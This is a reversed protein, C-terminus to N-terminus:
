PRPSSPAQEARRTGEARPRRCPGGRYLRRHRERAEDDIVPGIDTALTWPDGLTLEDMAGFLMDQVTDAVDEQVYLCRLASCRQGASQFASALIDRVAQEPLATSDVLMANLGGTEAILPAAPDLHEAMARRIKLATETSGTFAVGNVRPDSVLAAGVEGDGPLLQLATPPVGAKHLLDVALTAILPTQPAPKALVANGAALAAAIQGSFIALPFNWPSICTFIGRPPDILRPAQAAYYRLFDVAERLESVADALTKGAERALLAFIPGFNAEYLEAARNLIEAREPAAATWPTPPACPPRM